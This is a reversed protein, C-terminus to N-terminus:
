PSADPRDLRLREAKSGFLLAKMKQAGMVRVLESALCYLLLSVYLWIQLGWFHPWSIESLLHEGAGALSHYKSILPIIEEVIRLLSALTGYILAKWLISYFLPKESFLNTFHLKEGILIAKAVFLAAITAFASSAATISYEQLILAKTAAILHFVVLFFITPPIAERIEKGVIPILKSLRNEM